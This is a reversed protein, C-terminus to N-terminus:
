AYKIEDYQDNFVISRLHLMRKLNRKRWRISAGKIRTNNMKKIAGEIAGSGLPLGLEQFYGYRIRERNNKIYGLLKRLAEHVNPKAENKVQLNQVDLVLHAIKDDYCYQLSKDVWDRQDKSNSFLLQAAEFLHESFHYQDLVQIIEPLHEEFNLGIWKAGDSNLSSKNTSTDLGKEKIEDCFDKMFTQGNAITTWQVTDHDNTIVWTKTEKWPNLENIMEQKRQQSFLEPNNKNGDKTIVANIAKLAKTPSKDIRTRARGGDVLFTIRKEEKPTDKPFPKLDRIKIKAGANAIKTVTKNCTTHSVYQSYYREIFKSCERSPLTAEIFGIEHDLGSSRQKGVIALENDIPYHTGEGKV